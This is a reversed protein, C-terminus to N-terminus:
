SLAHASSIEAATIAIHHQDNERSSTRRDRALTLFADIEGLNRPHPRYDLRASTAVPRRQGPQRSHASLEHTIDDDVWIL